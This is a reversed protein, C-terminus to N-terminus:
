YKIIIIGSGGNGGHGSTVGNAGGGSPMPTFVEVYKTGDWKTFRIDDTNVALVPACLAVLFDICALSKKM